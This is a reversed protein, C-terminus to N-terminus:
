IVVVGASFGRVEVASPAALAKSVNALRADNTTGVTMKFEGDFGNGHHVLYLLILHPSLRPFRLRPVSARAVDGGCDVEARKCRWM